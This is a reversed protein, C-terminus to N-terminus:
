SFTMTLDEIPYCIEFGECSGMVEPKSVGSTGGGVAGDCCSGGATREEGEGGRGGCANLFEGGGCAVLLEVGGVVCEGWGGVM